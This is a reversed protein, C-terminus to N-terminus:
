FDNPAIPGDLPALGDIRRLHLGLKTIALCLAALRDPSKALRRRGQARADALAAPDWSLMQEELRTFPRTHFVKELAYFSHVPVARDLQGKRTDDEVVPCPPRWPRFLPQILDWGTNREVVISSARYRRAAKVATNVWGNEGDASMHGSLDDLVYAINGVKAVVCIGAEDTGGMTPDVGVIIKSRGHEPCAQYQIQERKWLAGEPKFFRGYVESIGRPTKAIQLTEFQTDPPLNNFNELSSSWTVKIRREHAELTLRELFSTDIGPAPPNTTILKKPEGVRASLCVQRWVEEFDKYTGVEDLWWVEINQGRISQPKEATYLEAVAGTHFRVLSQSSNFVPEEDPPFCDILAGKGRIMSRLHKATPGVFGFYRVGAYVLRRIEQIAATSKASGRGGIQLWTSVNENEWDPAVQHPLRWLPWDYKIQALQEDPLVALRAAARHVVSMPYKPDIPM